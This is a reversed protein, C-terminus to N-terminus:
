KKGGILGRQEATRWMQFVIIALLIGGVGPVARVMLALIIAAIIAAIM